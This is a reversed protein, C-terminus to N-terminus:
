VIEAVSRAMGRQTTLETDKDTACLNSCPRCFGMIDDRVNPPFCVKAFPSLWDFRFRASNGGHGGKPGVGFVEAVGGLSPVGVDGGGKLRDIHTM